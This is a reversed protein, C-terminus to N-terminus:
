GTGHPTTAAAQLWWKLEILEHLIPGALWSMAGVEADAAEAEIDDTDTTRDFLAMMWREVQAAKPDRTSSDLLHTPRYRRRPSWLKRPLPEWWGRTVFEAIVEAVGVHNRWLLQRLDPETEGAIAALLRDAPPFGSQTASAHVLGERAVVLRSAALDLLLAGRIVANALGRYRPYVDNRVMSDAVM